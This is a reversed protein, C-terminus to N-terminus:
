SKIMELNSDFSLRSSNIDIRLAKQNATKPSVCLQVLTTSKMSLLSEVRQLKKKNGLSFIRRQLNSFTSFMLRFVSVSNWAWDFFTMESTSQGSSFERFYTSQCSSYKLSHKRLQENRDKFICNWDLYKKFM